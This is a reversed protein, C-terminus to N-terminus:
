AIFNFYRLVNQSLNYPFNTEVEKKKLFVFIQLFHWKKEPFVYFIIM